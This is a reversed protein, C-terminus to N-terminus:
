RFAGPIASSATSWRSAIRAPSRRGSSSNRRIGVLAQLLHSQRGSGVRDQSRCLDRGLVAVPGGIRAGVRSSDIEYSKEKPTEEVRTSRHSGHIEHMQGAKGVFPCAMQRAPGDPEAARGPNERASSLGAHCLSHRRLCCSAKGLFIAAAKLTACRRLAQGEDRGRRALKRDGGSACSRRSRRGPRRGSGDAASASANSRRPPTPSACRAGNRWAKASRSRSRAMSCTVRASRISPRSPMPPCM